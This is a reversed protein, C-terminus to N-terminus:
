KLTLIAPSCVSLNTQKMKASDDKLMLFDKNVQEIAIAPNM